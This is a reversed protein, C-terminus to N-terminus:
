IPNCRRSRRRRRRRQMTTAAMSSFRSGLGALPRRPRPGALRRARHPRRRRGFCRRWVAAVRLLDTDFCAWTDHPLKIILGRPTLNDKGAGERRADLISSFFPFDAEVWDGWPQPAYVVKKQVTKKKPEAASLSLAGLLLTLILRPLNMPM